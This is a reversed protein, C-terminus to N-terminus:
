RAYASVSLQKLLIFATDFDTRCINCLLVAKLLLLNVIHDITSIPPAIKSLSAKDQVDLVLDDVKEKWAITWLLGKIGPLTYREVRTFGNADIQFSSGFPHGLLGGMDLKRNNIRVLRHAVM